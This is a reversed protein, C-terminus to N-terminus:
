GVWYDVGGYYQEYLHIAIADIKCGTCAAMFKDMWEIGDGMAVAPSVLKKGTAEMKPWLSAAFEPTMNAQSSLNPENFGMLWESGSSMKAVDDLVVHNWVMPVFEADCGNSYISWNHYWTADVGKIDNCNVQSPNM